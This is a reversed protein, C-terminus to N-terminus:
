GVIPEKQHFSGHVITLELQTAHMPLLWAKDLVRHLPMLVAQVDEDTPDLDSVALAIFAVCSCRTWGKVVDVSFPQLSMNGSGQSGCKSCKFLRNKPPLFRM